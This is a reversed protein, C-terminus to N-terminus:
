EQRLLVVGLIKWLAGDSPNVHLLAEAREEAEALRGRALMDVLAEIDRNEVPNHM